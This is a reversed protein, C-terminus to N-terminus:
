CELNSLSFGKGELFDNNKFKKKYFIQGQRKNSAAALTKKIVM